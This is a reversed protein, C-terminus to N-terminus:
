ADGPASGEPRTLVFGAATLLPEVVNRLRQGHQLSCPAHFAIRTGAAAGEALLASLAELENAVVEVIDRALASVRVAKDAYHGDDQLLHWYDKVETGCGSATVVIAEAGAELGGASSREQIPLASPTGSM